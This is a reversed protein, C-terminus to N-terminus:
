YPLPRGTKKFEEEAAKMGEKVSKDLRKWRALEEAAPWSTVPGSIEACPRSWLSVGGGEVVRGEEPMAVTTEDLLILLVEDGSVGPRDPWACLGCRADRDKEEVAVDAFRYGNLPAPAAAGAWAAALSEPILDLVRRGDPTRHLDPLRAAFVPRGGEGESMERYVFQAVQYKRLASLAGTRNTVKTVGRVMRLGGVFGGVVLVGALGLSIIRLPSAM